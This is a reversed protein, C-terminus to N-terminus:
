KSVEEFVIKNLANIYARISAGIIDTSLGKGSYLRGNARLKVLASGMAERGETVAQIQFDDLEFHHGVIQEIALFAADIPGDGISIGDLMAKDKELTIHATASIVNGSNIVYSAVRYAPPVHLAASAVIADLEKAGVNKKNAIRTFEEFVKAMDDSSIDYGLRVVAQAVTTIDDKASLLVDDTNDAVGNEFPTTKSKETEVIEGIKAAVRNLETIKISSTLGCADGRLRIIQSVAEISPIDGNCAIVKIESAGARAAAAACAVGMKLQDSCQVGLTVGKVAPVNNYLDEIFKGFEDPMMTGAADCITIIAAGAKVATDVASYLIEKESRTADDAIFEVESCISSAKGVLESIMEMVKKPKKHCVYEMQVTSVPVIVQLRAKQAGKVCEWIEDISEANLRVPVAVTSNQVSMAVTKILVADEKGATPVALEVASVGLKDLLKATEIKEKFSLTSDAHKATERLTVDSISLKRM